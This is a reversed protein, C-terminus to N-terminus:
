CYINWHKLFTVNQVRIRELAIFNCHIKIEWRECSVASGRSVKEKENCKQLLFDKEEVKLLLRWDERKYGFKCFPVPAIATKAGTEGSLVLLILLNYSFYSTQEQEPVGRAISAVSPLALWHFKFGM